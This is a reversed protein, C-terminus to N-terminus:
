MDLKLQKDIGDLESNIQEITKGYKFGYSICNEVEGLRLLENWLDPHERRFRHMCGKRMNPCFWCGGRTGTDYIPSLLGQARCMEKAMAETVGYKEMLSTRDKARYVRELRVPEDIAIGVYQMVQQGDFQRYYERIPAIKCDRNIRCAGGIPFGQHKGVYMGRTMIHM